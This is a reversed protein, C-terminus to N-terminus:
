ALGRRAARGRAQGIPGRRPVGSGPGPGLLHNVAMPHDYAGSTLQPMLSEVQTHHAEVLQLLEGSHSGAQQMGLLGVGGVAGLLALVMGIAAIMRLRITCRRLLNQLTNM